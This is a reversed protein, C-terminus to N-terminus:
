RISAPEASDSRFSRQFVIGEGERIRVSQNAAVGRIEEAAGSPWRISIKRIVGAGGVGFHLRFDSQSAFSSGSRVENVQRLGDSEVAVKAGIANRNSKVGELQIVISNGRGTEFRFLSPPENMNTVIVELAGDGDLDGTAVGRSAYPMTLASGAANTIDRFAGNRLNWYLLKPQRYNEGAKAGALEPYIHGNAMFIDKWGDHDFDLFEVGWGVIKTHIGLGAEVTADEFFWDGLNRYLTSTEDIFNTKVIDLLGDNNYDAAAVGMSGEEQGADGYATGAEVAIDTFTGNRNNRFHLSPTSDCAVYIDPWGDGDFDGAVVGLGYHLGDVLIGAGHSVDTFRGDRNHYLASKGTPFGKPGCFVPLGKWFCFPSSGPAAGRGLDFEVYNSVFMDLSGDRDYDLFACGTAWRQGTTPLGVRATVDEFRGSGLNRYLVNHGYYTILVDTHGDNDYDGACAGQGWGRNDIGSNRTVDDFTGDGRNRYLRHPAPRDSGLRRGNVFLLDPWGDNDFDFVAVGNGTMELIFRKSDIGGYVNHATLGSASAVDTVKIAPSPPGAAVKSSGRSTVRVSSGM